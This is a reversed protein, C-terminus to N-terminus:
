SIEEKSEDIIKFKDWLSKFEKCLKIMQDVSNEVEKVSKKKIIDQM